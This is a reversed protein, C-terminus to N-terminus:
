FKARAVLSELWWGLRHRALQRRHAALIGSAHARWRERGDYAVLARAFDTRTLFRRGRAELRGLARYLRALNRHRRELSLHGELRSRDLDILWLRAPERPGATWEVLVNKPQLDAHALGAGHAASLLRGLARALGQREEPALGGSRLGELVEALDCSGEVRESVLDLRWGFPRLRRARAAVVRPTRLGRELLAAALALERFPRAPDFFRVGTLWRLLGGHRYRRVVLRRAGIRLEGMPGRGALDSSAPPDGGDATFGAAALDREWEALVALRGRRTAVLRYGAPPAPVGVAM